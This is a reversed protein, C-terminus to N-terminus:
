ENEEKKLEEVVRRVRDLGDFDTVNLSYNFAFVGGVM